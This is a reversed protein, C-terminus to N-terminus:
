QFAPNEVQVSLAVYSGEANTKVVIAAKAWGSNVNIAADPYKGKLMSGMFATLYALDTKDGYKATVTLIVNKEPPTIGKQDISSRFLPKGKGFLIDAELHKLAIQYLEPDNATIGMSTLQKEMEDQKEKDIKGTGTDSGCATLLTLTLIGALLVAAFRKLKKM